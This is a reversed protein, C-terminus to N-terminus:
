HSYWYLTGNDGIFAIRHAPWIGGAWEIDNWSGTFGNVSQQSWSGGSNTSHLIVGNAGATWVETQSTMSVARLSSTVPSQQPGTWFTGGNSLAQYITGYASVTIGNGQSSIYIATLDDGAGSVSVSSWTTGGQYDYIQGANGVVTGHLQDIGYLAGSTTTMAVTWSNGADMSTLIVGETGSNAGGVVVMLGQPNQTSKSGWFIDRIAVVPTSPLTLQSWIGGADTTKLLTGNNGGAIGNNQDLFRVRYLNQSTGSSQASWTTGGDISRLITGDFGCAYVSDNSAFCIGEINATTGFNGQTWGTDTKTVTDTQANWGGEHFRTAVEAASLAHHLVLLDDFRATDAQYNINGILYLAEPGSSTPNYSGYARSAINVTDIYITALSQASVTLTLLHWGDQTGSPAMNAPLPGCGALSGGNIYFEFSSESITFDAGASLNAWISVTYSDTDTFVPMDGVNVMCKGVMEIAQNSHLGQFGHFRDPYKYDTDAVGFLSLFSTHANGSSDTLTGEFPLLLITDRNITTTPNNTPPGTLKDKCSTIVLLTLLTFPILRLKM